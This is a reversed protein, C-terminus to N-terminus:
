GLSLGALDLSSRTLRKGDEYTTMEFRQRDDIEWTSTSKGHSWEFVIGAEGNPMVRTPSPMGNARGQRLIAVALRITASSPPVVDDDTVVSPDALWVQLKDLALDWGDPDHFDDRSANTRVIAFRPPSDTSVWAGIATM